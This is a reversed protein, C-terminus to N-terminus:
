ESLQVISEDYADVMNMFTDYKQMFDVFWEALPMGEPSTRSKAFEMALSRAEEETLNYHKM